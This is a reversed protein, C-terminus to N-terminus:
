EWYFGENLEVCDKIGQKFQQFTACDKRAGYGFKFDENANEIYHYIAKAVSNTITAECDSAWFFNSFKDLLRKEVNDSGENALYNMNNIKKNVDDFFEKKKTEDFFIIHEQVDEYIEHLKKHPVHKLINDCLYKFGFYGCDLTFKPFHISVGM